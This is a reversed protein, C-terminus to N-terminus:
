PKAAAPPAPKRAAQSSDAATGAPVSKAAAVPPLDDRRSGPVAPAVPMLLGGKEELYLIRGGAAEQYQTVAGAAGRPGPGHRAPVPMEAGAAIPQLIAAALGLAVFASVRAAMGDGHVQSSGM